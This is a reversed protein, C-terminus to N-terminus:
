ISFEVNHFSIKLLHQLKTISLPPDFSPKTLILTGLFSVNDFLKEQWM